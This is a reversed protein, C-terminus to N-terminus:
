EDAGICAESLITEALPSFCTAVVVRVSCFPHNRREALPNVNEDGEILILSVCFFELALLDM